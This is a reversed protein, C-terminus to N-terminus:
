AGDQIVEPNKLQCLIADLTHHDAIIDAEIRTRHPYIEDEKSPFLGNM